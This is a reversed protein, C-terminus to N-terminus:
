STEDRTNGTIQGFTIRDDLLPAPLNRNISDHAFLCNQLNIYDSLKLISAEKFLPTATTHKPKFTM